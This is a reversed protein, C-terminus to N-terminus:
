SALKSQVSKRFHPMKCKDEMWKQLRNEHPITSQSFLEEPLKSCEDPIAPSFRDTQTLPAHAKSYNHKELLEEASKLLLCLNKQKKPITCGAASLHGGGGFREALSTLNISDKSRLSVRWERINKERFLIAIKVGQISRIKESVSDADSDSAGVKKFDARSLVSWAIEGSSSFCCRSLSIGTLLATEKSTVWYVSEALKYFDVGSKLLESCLEFTRPRIGPLRFSNTEVILSTLINQAIDSTIAVDLELLLEYVLEGACAADADVLLVDGFPTRSRHHDIEIVCRAREFVEVNKGTMEKSGCDVSIAVDVQRHLTKILRTAGPLSQYNRPLDDSCLIYVQKGINELGLGLSLMSGISDGDPNIHGCIAFTDANLIIERAIEINRTTCIQESILSM